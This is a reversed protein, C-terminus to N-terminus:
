IGVGMARATGVAMMTNMVTDMPTSSCHHSTHSTRTQINNQKTYHRDLALEYARQQTKTMLKEIDFNPDYKCCAEIIPVNFKEIIAPYLDTLTGKHKKIDKIFIEFLRVYNKLVARLMIRAKLQVNNTNNYLDIMNDETLNNIILLSGETDLLYTKYIEYNENLKTVGISNLIHFLLPQRMNCVISEVIIEGIQADKIDHKRLYTKMAEESQITYLDAVRVPKNGM